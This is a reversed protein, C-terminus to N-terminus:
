KHSAAVASKRLRGLGGEAGGSQNTLQPYSVSGGGAKKAPNSEIKHVPHIKDGNTKSRATSEGGKDDADPEGTGKAKGVRGGRRMAIPGPGGAGGMPMPGAGMPGAGMPGAGPPMPPPMPPTAAQALAAALAPDPPGGPGGPPKPAANISIHINTGKDDKVAGGDKYGLYKRAKATEEEGRKTKIPYAM